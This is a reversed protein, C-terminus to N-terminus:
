GNKSCKKTANKNPKWAGKARRQENCVKWMGKIMTRAIIPDEMDELLLDVGVSGDADYLSSYKQLM